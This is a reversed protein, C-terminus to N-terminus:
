GILKKVKEELDEQESDLWTVEPWSRLWTTQRKALQRTAALAKEIMNTHDSEGLFYEWVQRYGVSRLAPKELSLDGREYLGRVEDIFGAELMHMFRSKIRHHLIARDPSLAIARIDYAQLPQTYAQQRETITQGTLLYVELARQIRQQDNPHIRKAAEPDQQLLQEYLVAWGSKEAQAELEARLQMDAAPLEALGQQLIKFYMMTGGVLLPIKEQAHIDAIERLADERFMGASYIEAPDRIDILKHPAIQLIQPSPKATGINLGRYVMASDVSVLEVPFQQALKIALPTKGSATPGM